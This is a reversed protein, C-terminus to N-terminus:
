DETEEELELSAISEIAGGSLAQVDGFMGSMNDMVLGLQKDRKSWYKTMARREKELDEKMTIFAEIVAQVRQRFDNGTLYEYLLAQKEKAGEKHGKVLMVERLTARLAHALPIASAYDAVWVGGVEGFHEIGAPLAQTVIMALDARADRMDNQLKNPWNNSWNKTRKTEYIITGCLRGTQNIVEQIVDAGRVGTSVPEIKDIPFALKLQQEFDVELVDGQAQMSGQEAKRQADQLQTKLDAVLKEKEAFKLRNEEDAQKRISARLTERGENLKREVELAMTEKEETLKRRERQLELEQAQAKQLAKSKEELEEELAKRNLSEAETARKTAQAELVKRLEAEKKDLAEQLETEMRRKMETEQRKLAMREKELAEQQSAVTKERSELEGQLERQKRRLEAEAEQSKKLIDAKAELDEKLAKIELAGAEKTRRIAREEAKQRVEEIQKSLEKDVEVQVKEALEATQQKIRQQEELLAQKGEALQKERRQIESQLEHSLSERVSSLVGESLPFQHGCEPCKVSIGENMSSEIPANKSKM